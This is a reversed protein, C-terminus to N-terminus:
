ASLLISTKRRLHALIRVQPLKSYLVNEGPLVVAGGSWHRVSPTTPVLRGPRCECLPRGFHFFTHYDVLFPWRLNPRYFIPRCMGFSPPLKWLPSCSPLM